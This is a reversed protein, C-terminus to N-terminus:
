YYGVQETLKKVRKPAKEEVHLIEKIQQHQEEEM